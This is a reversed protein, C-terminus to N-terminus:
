STTQTQRLKYAAALQLSLQQQTSFVDGAGDASSDDGSDGTADPVLKNFRSVGV